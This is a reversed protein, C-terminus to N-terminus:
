ALARELVLRAAEEPSLRGTDVELDYVIGDHVFAAQRAAMGVVRDGRASERAALVEPDCRVAVWLVSLGALAENWNRQGEAGDFIVEDLVLKLGTRALAGVGRRWASELARWAPGVEIRGGPHILLGDASGDLKLPMAHILADVGFTLWPEDLAEQLARALSSKGASSPGNLLIVDATV